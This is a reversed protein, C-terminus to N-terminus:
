FTAHLTISTSYTIYTISVFGVQNNVVLHLSGGVNFHPVQSFALTEQVIGQGLCFFFCISGSSFFFLIFYCGSVAADGHVQLCIVRDGMNGTGYDGEQIRIGL